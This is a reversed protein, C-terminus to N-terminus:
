RGGVRRRARGAIKRVRRCASLDGSWLIPKGAPKFWVARGTVPHAVVFHQARVGSAAAQGFPETPCAGGGGFLESIGAGIGAGALVGGVGRVISPISRAVTTPLFSSGGPMSQPGRIANILSGIGAGLGAFDFGGGYDGASPSLLYPLVTVETRTRQRTLRRATLYDLLRLVLEFTVTFPDVGARPPAGVGSGTGAPAGPQTARYVLPPAEGLVARQAQVASSVVPNPISWSSGGSSSRRAEIFRGLSAAASGVLGGLNAGEGGFLPM